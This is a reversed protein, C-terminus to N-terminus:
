AALTDASALLYSSSSVSALLVKHHLAIHNDVAAYAALRKAAEIPALAATSPPLTPEKSLAPGQTKSILHATTPTSAMTTLSRTIIFSRMGNYGHDVDVVRYGGMGDVGEDGGDEVLMAELCRVGLGDHLEFM